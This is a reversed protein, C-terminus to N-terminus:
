IWNYMHGIPCLGNPYIYLQGHLLPRQQQLWVATTEREGEERSYPGKEGEDAYSLVCELRFLRESLKPDVTYTGSPSLQLPCPM